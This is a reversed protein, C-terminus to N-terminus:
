TNWKAFEKQPTKLRDNYAIILVDINTIASDLVVKIIIKAYDGM